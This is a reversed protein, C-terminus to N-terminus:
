LIFLLITTLDPCLQSFYGRVPIDKRHLHSHSALSLHGIGHRLCLSMQWDRFGTIFLGLKNRSNESNTIRYIKKARSSVRYDYGWPVASDNQYPFRSSVQITIPKPALPSQIASPKPSFPSPSAQPPATTVQRASPPERNVENVVYNQEEESFEILGDNGKSRRPIACLRRDLARNRQFECVKNPNYGPYRLNPDMREPQIMEADVLAKFILRMPFKVESLSRKRYCTTGGDIANTAHSSHNPLPNGNVEPAETFKAFDLWKADRLARVKLKLATCNETSHGWLVRMITADPTRTM